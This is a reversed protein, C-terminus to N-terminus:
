KSIVAAPVACALLANTNSLECFIDPIFLKDQVLKVTLPVFIVLPPPVGASNDPIVAPIADALLANTNFAELSILSIVLNCIPVFVVIPPPSRFIIFVAALELM